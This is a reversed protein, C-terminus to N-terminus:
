HYSELHLRAKDVVDKWTKRPRVTQKARLLLMLLQANNVWDEHSNRLSHIQFEDLTVFYM